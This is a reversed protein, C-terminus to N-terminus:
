KNIRIPILLACPMDAKSAKIKKGKLQSQVMTKGFCVNSKLAGNIPSYM